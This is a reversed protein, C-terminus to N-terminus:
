QGLILKRQKSVIPIYYDDYPFIEMDMWGWSISEWFEKMCGYKMGNNYDELAYKFICFGDWFVDWSPPPYSYHKMAFRLKANTKLLYEFGEKNM